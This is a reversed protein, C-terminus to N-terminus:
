ATPTAAADIRHRKADVLLESIREDVFTTVHTACM